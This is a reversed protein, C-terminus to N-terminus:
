LQKELLNLIRQTALLDPKKSTNDIEFSQNLFQEMELQSPLGVADWANILGAEHMAKAFKLHTTTASFVWTPIDLYILEWVMMGMASCAKTYSPAALLLVIPSDKIYNYPMRAYRETSHFFGANDYGYPFKPLLNMIDESGGWVFWRNQKDSNLAISKVEDLEPRLIVYETGSVVNDPTAEGILGQIIVLNHDYEMRYGIGNLICTKTEPPRSQLNFPLDIITWDADDVRHENKREDWLKFFGYSWYQFNEVPLFHFNRDGILTIEHGAELAAKALAECRFYHGQGTTSNSFVIFQLNM